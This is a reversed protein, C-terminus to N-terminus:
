FSLLFIWFRMFKYSVKNLKQGMTFNSKNRQEWTEGDFMTKLLTSSVKYNEDLM